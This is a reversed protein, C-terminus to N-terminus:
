LTISHFEHCCDLKSRTKFAMEHSRRTFFIKFRNFISLIIVMLSYGQKNHGVSYIAALTTCYSGSRHVCYMITVVLPLTSEQSYLDGRFRFERGGADM